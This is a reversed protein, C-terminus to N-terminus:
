EFITCNILYNPFISYRPASCLQCYPAHTNYAPYILSCICVSLNNLVWQKEVAVITVGVRRLTATFMAQRWAIYTCRLVSAREHLWQKCHSLLLCKVNQTHTQLKHIWRVIRMRWITIQPRDRTGINNWMIEYLCSKRSFFLTIWRLLTKIREVAKTRLM